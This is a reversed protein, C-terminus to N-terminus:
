VCKCITDLYSISVVDVFAIAKKGNPFVIVNQLIKNELVLRLSIRDKCVHGMRRFVSVCMSADAM